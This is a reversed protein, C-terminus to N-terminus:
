LSMKKKKMITQPKQFFNNIDGVYNSSNKSKLSNLKKAEYFHEIIQNLKLM